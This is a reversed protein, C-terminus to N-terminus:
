RNLIHISHKHTAEAAELMLESLTPHPHVTLAIDDVTAAMELALCAEGIIDSANPGVAHVALVLDTEADAIMKIVGETAGLTLARGLAALPFKGVKLKFGKAELEKQTPGVWAIEPSTYVVGPIAVADQLSPKGACREAAVLGDKMAKHALWAGTVVDGIAYVGPVSTERTQPNIDVAGRETFKVGIEELGIGKGVPHRGVASVIRDFIEVRTEKTKLDELTVHLGDAKKEFGQVGMPQHIVIGQKKYAKLAEAVIDEDAGAIVQVPEIVTVKSGLRNYITAFEMGIVGGGICLVRPPVTDPIILGSTSDVIDTGDVPFTKLYNPAGGTAVILKDFNVTQEGDKGKVVATNRGTVRAEGFFSTVGNGKLLGSVGGSLKKVIGERYKNVAKLDLNMELINIGMSSGHQANYVEQGVHLLAKTPICGVNLCVGGWFEKEAIAVKLGLQAARIAAHYGGPGSGIVFVDYRVTNETAM